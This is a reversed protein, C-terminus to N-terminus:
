NKSKRKILVVTAVVACVVVVAAVVCGVILAVNVGNGGDTFGGVPVVIRVPNVLEFGDKAEYRSLAEDSIYKIELENNASLDAYSLSLKGEETIKDKVEKGNLTVSYVSYGEDPKITYTYSGGETVSQIQGDSNNLKGGKGEVSAFITKATDKEAPVVAVMFPSFSQVTAVIGFQTVVCPIEEVSEIVGASNRKYHYIKFTVGEDEPGFGEPFGLAIKVYSGNPIKAFKGCISLSIEYTQSARIDEQNVNIDASTDLLDHMKDSEAKKPSDVVLMMQSREQESYYNGNEDQFGVESLDSNSILTPQACCNVFLRGDYGFYRPCAQYNRAFSFSITNPSKNTIYKEGGPKFKEQCSFVDTFSFTYREGNHEYMLSPMFRFRITNGNVLEVLKGNELPLLKAYKSTNAHKTTFSIGITKGEPVYLKENYVVTYTRAHKEDMLSSNPARLSDSITVDETNIPSIQMAYPASAYTGFSENEFIETIVSMHDGIDYDPDDEKTYSYCYNFDAPIHNEFDPNYALDPEIDIVAFQWYLYSSNGVVSVSHGDDIIGAVANNIILAGLDTWVAWKIEGTEDDYDAFRYAIHLGDEILDVAGKDNYSVTAFPYMYPNGNDDLGSENQTKDEIYEVGYVLGDSNTKCGYNYPSLKPYKLEYGSSSIVGDVIHDVSESLAGMNMYKDKNSLGSNWTSDVAYWNGEGDGESARAAKATDTKEVPDPLYIYNWMHSVSRETVKGKEDKSMGYGSVCVCPIGLKDMVAKFAKSYGGCVAKGVVLAGYATHVSAASSASSGSQIYDNLAGYDYELNDPNALYRNVYRAKLVEKATTTTVESDAFHTAAQAIENVKANFESIAVNVEEESKFGNDFYANAERGSDIYASYVGNTRGASITLKYMDIYFLEPHDTLYADRAASFARPIEANGDNVWAKIEDSTALDNQTLEYEVIGDKFDGSRNMEDFVKYFKKALTFENGNTYTLQNYFYETAVNQVSGDDAIATDDKFMYLGSVLSIACASALGAVAIKKTATKM